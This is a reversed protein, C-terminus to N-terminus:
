GSAAGRASRPETTRSLMLSGLMACYVFVLEQRTEDLPAGSLATDNYFAGLLELGGFIPTAVVWGHGIEVSRAQEIHMHPHGDLKVWHPEGLAVTRELERWAPGKARVVYSEDVTRGKRNTGFTGRIKDSEDMRVWLGCRELGLQERALEVARRYFAESERVQMLESASVLIGRLGSVCM